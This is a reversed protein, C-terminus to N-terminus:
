ALRGRRQLLRRAAVSLAIGAMGIWILIAPSTEPIATPDPPHAGLQLFEQNSVYSATPTYIRLESYIALNAPGGQRVSYAADNLLTQATANPANVGPTFLMWLAYQYDATMDLLLGPGTHNLGDLLIAAQEYRTIAVGRNPDVFRAYQLPTPSTLTSLSFDMPGSPENTTHGFDDCILM